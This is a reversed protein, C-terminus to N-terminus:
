WNSFARNFITQVIKDLVLPAIKDDVENSSMESPYVELERFTTSFNNEPQIKSTFDIKVSITLRNQAVTETNTIAVPDIFYNTIVGNIEIDGDNQVMKLNTEKLFKDQLKEVLLPSISPVQISAMNPINNITVSKINPNVSADTFRYIKCASLSTLIFILFLTQVVNRMSIM